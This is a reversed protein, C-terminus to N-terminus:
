SNIQHPIIAENELLDKILGEVRNKLNNYKDKDAIFEDVLKM